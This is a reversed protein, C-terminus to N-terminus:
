ARGRRVVFEIWTLWVGVVFVIFIGQWVYEHCFTFWKRGATTDYAALYALSSLRGLNVAYLFPLGGLLGIARRFWTTPFALVAAVFISLSPIAGCDPVVVFGFSRDRLANSRAPGAPLGDVQGRLATIHAEIRGLETKEAGKKRRDTLYQSAKSIRATLGQQAVLYVFPGRNQISGGSEVTRYAQYLWREYPNLALTAPAGPAADALGRWKRLQTRALADPLDLSRSEIEAHHGVRDLVMRTHNAVQFLYWMNAETNVSYRYGILLSLVYAVFLLVFSLTRRGRLPDANAGQAEASSSGERDVPTLSEEEM